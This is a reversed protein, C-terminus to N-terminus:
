LFGSSKLALHAIQKQRSTFKGLIAGYAGESPERYKSTWHVASLLYLGFMSEFGTILKGVKELNDKTDSFNELAANAAEKVRSSVWWGAYSTQAWESNIASLRMVLSASYPCSRMVFPEELPEGAAQLLYCLAHVEEPEVAPTLGGALYRGILWIVAAEFKSM